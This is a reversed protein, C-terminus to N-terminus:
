NPFIRQPEALIIPEDRLYGSEEEVLSRAYGHGSHVAHVIAGPALADGLLHLSPPENDPLAASLTQYLEDRPERHGVIVIGDVDLETPVANFLNQLMARQGDFDMLNTSTHIAVNRAALARYVFPLENTMFTWASAHGAPTAYTVQHGQEALHEAIVGGLYYNDFDFVLLRDGAVQHTYVDEPTYVQPTILPEAPLELASYRRRTWRAGTAIAIHDSGFDLAAQVDLESNTFMAVNGMQSLVWVRYDRVRRWTAMGPLRSESLVRGGWDGTQEAITVDLGQRAAVVAAELGAPGGGVILLSAPQSTRTFREPHWGRRWEEGATPNQTCRVPVGDHWSAICINCGICERIDDSRGERIKTPLFPDAISARAGGILDLVGRRIQSVMTDPSTFRGVGVVPRDTTRKVFDIIPEHAGEPRFRSAGCDTPSSDMKVDWLDPVDALLSVVGHAESEYHESPKARLEELSIRLAVAARNGAEERTVELMERVFRVRNELKGGYGDQRHNYEPLLFEYGLYGMGAYVYLIDFGADLARRAALRQWHLVADIDAETM